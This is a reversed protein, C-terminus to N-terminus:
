REIVKLPELSLGHSYMVVRADDVQIGNRKIRMDVTGSLSKVSEVTVQGRLEDDFGNKYRCMAEM